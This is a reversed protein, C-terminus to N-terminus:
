IKIYLICYTSIGIKRRTDIIRQTKIINEHKQIKKLHLLGM